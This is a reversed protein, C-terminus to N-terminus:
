RLIKTTLNIYNVTSDQFHHKFFAVEAAVGLSQQWGDMQLVHLTDCRTLMAFNYEMWYGADRPLDYTSALAHCHVIPSYCWKRARLLEATYGLVQQYRSDMVMKDPHSYPSAIYIM